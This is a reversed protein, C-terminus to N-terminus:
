NKIKIALLEIKQILFLYTLRLKNTSDRIGVPVSVNYCIVMVLHLFVDINYHRSLISEQEREIYIFM